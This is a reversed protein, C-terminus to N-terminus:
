SKCFRCVIIIASFNTNENHINYYYKTYKVILFFDLFIISSM